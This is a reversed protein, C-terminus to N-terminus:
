GQVVEGKPTIRIETGDYRKFSFAKYDETYTRALDQLISIGVDEGLQLGAVCDSRYHIGAWDRSMAINFALKDIEDGVTPSYNPRPVLNLGDASPEVCGPLLMSGDFCAKLVVSCAGAIAAHGAPYSPHFPCGEPYAQPLLYSGTRAFVTDVAESELLTSHIPYKRIGTRTQHILGGLAEPRLRRHVMWKQCYAAKLAATSVRGLWDFAEPPGFTAFGEEITSYRYPNSPSKFQNCNLISKPGANVLILAANLYAQYTFDYHVYEALDRGNRIYRPVPDYSAWRWPPMGVQIQSWENLTTMFETGPVPLNYRQDIRGCGYPVPKLLFQSVYPGTLDGTTPGRFVSAPPAGLHKAAQRVIPSTEYDSFSVDRCLAQWYLESTELTAAQSAISPAPPIDFTHSDGGEMQFTFASQPNNLRRGGGRPLGEFDSFKGSKIAALLADYAAPDVEGFQNQHMGKTFCAIRNPLSDEDGNAIMAAMPRESQTLAAQKRLEFAAQARSNKAIEPTFVGTTLAGLSRALPTAVLTGALFSRRTFSSRKM